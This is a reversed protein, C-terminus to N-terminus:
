ALPPPSAALWEDIDALASRRIEPPASSAHVSCRALDALAADDLGLERRALEYQVALRGGFLLPDDAGLAVPVGAELLRRVPVAAATAAVGLAVNSTISVECCVRRDALLGLVAPDDVARVGHGVRHAGLLTVCDRVSTAGATEGGHPVALLGGARAIRFAKVFEGAPGRREDNSLGFGVVGNGANRVALRALTAADLPHRTRNAAIILAMGIGTAAAAADVASVLVEVAGVLGGLRQAYGSPDVQLEVWVSGDAVEDEAIETIVRHVDDATRLVSRAADYIRQFRFWGSPATAPLAIGSGSRVPGSLAAPLGVRYRAALAALTAPRMGGVLHLHLHAKPLARVDRCGTM